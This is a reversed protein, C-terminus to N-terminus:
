AVSVSTHHGTNLQGRETAGCGHRFRFYKTAASTPTISFHRSKLTDTCELISRTRRSNHLTRKSGKQWWVNCLPNIFILQLRWRGSRPTRATIKPLLLWRLDTCSRSRLKLKTTAVLYTPCCSIANEVIAVHILLVNLRMDSESITWFLLTSLNQAHPHPSTEHLTTFM